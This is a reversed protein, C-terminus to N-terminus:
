FEDIKKLITNVWDTDSVSIIITKFGFEKGEMEVGTSDDIHINIDFAPPLKSVNKGKNKVKKEHMQQNVVFDVPIGHSLFMLKIKLVSRYSTTYIYIKHKRARLAKFLEITGLRIREARILKAFFPRKELSFRTTSIITDDLDFSINM